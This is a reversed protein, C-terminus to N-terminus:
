RAVQSFPKRRVTACIPFRAHLSDHHFAAQREQIGKATDPHEVPNSISCGPIPLCALCAWGELTGWNGHLREWSSRCATRSLSCPTHSTSHPLQGEVRAKCLVMIGARGRDAQARPLVLTALQESWNMELRAACPNSEWRRGCLIFCITPFRSQVWSTKPGLGHLQPATSWFQMSRWRDRM